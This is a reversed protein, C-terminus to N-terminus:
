NDNRNILSDLINEVTPNIMKFKERGLNFGRNARQLSEILKGVSEKESKMYTNLTDQNTIAGNKLDTKLTALQKESLEIAEIFKRNKGNVNKFVKASSKYDGLMIAQKRSLTDKNEKIVKTLESMHRDVKEKIESLENIDWKRYDLVVEDLSIQL